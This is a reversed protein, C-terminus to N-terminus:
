NKSRGAANITGKKEAIGRLTPYFQVFTTDVAGHEAHCSYCSASIPILKGSVQNNFDFFAWKAPFRSEDKVHVELGKVTSSQFHGNQNISGKSQADRIELVLITKDPWVGSDLFSRYAAPNVFVNDFTSNTAQPNYSMDFGSSLYIWERYNAPFIMDGKPTYTPADPAIATAVLCALFGCAISRTM